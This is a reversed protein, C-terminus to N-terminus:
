PEGTYEQYKELSFLDKLEEPREIHIKILWGDQYPSQNILEPQGELRPNVETIEGTVPSFIEAVARNSELAGFAEDAQVSDGAEPLEIHEVNGFECQFNNTLGITGVGDEALVWVFDKSYLYKTPDM